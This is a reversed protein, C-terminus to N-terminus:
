FNRCKLLFHFEDGIDTKDCNKCVREHRPTIPRTYRGTEAALQHSSIRLKTFQRRQAKLIYSMMKWPLHHKLIRLKNQQIIDFNNNIAMVWGQRYKSSFDEQIFKPLGIQNLIDASFNPCERSLSSHLLSQVKSAWTHRSSSNSFESPLQAGVFIFASIKNRWILSGGGWQFFLCM